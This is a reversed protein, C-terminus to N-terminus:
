ECRSRARRAGRRAGGASGGTQQDQLVDLGACPRAVVLVDARGCLLVARLERACLFFVLLRLVLVCVIGVCVGYTPRRGVLRLHALDALADLLDADLVPGRGVGCLAHVDVHFLDLLGCLRLLIGGGLAGLM